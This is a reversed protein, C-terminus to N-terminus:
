DEGLTSSGSGTHYTSIAAVYGKLTSAALGKELLSQLFCVVKTASCQFPIIHQEACWKEFVRWKISYQERTSPAKANLLTNVVGPTLERADM